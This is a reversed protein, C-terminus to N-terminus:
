KPNFRFGGGEGLSPSNGFGGFTFNNSIQMGKPVSFGKAVEKNTSESIKSQPNPTECAVCKDVAAKNPVLCVTCTWGTVSNNSEKSDGFNFGTNGKSLTQLGFNFGSSKQAKSGESDVSPRTTECAVCQLAKAENQILCVQCKWSSQADLAPRFALSTEVDKMDESPLTKAVEAPNSGSHKNPVSDVRCNLTNEKDTQPKQILSSSDLSWQFHESSRDCFM